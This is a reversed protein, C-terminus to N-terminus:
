KFIKTLKLFTRYETKLQTNLYTWLTLIIRIVVAHETWAYKSLYKLLNIFNVTVVMVKSYICVGTM